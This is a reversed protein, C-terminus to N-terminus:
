PASFGGGSRPARQPSGVLLRNRLWNTRNPNGDGLFDFLADFAGDGDLDALFLEASYYELDLFVQQNTAPDVLDITLKYNGSRTIEGALPQGLTNTFDWGGVYGDLVDPTWPLDTPPGAGPQLVADAICYAAGSLSQFTNALVAVAFRHTDEWILFAGWGPINGGHQCIMLDGFPEVFIGYGYAMGPLIEQNAVPEQMEIASGPELVAGGGDILTLAWSALDGATSFAYGAASVIANDYADPPYITELIVGSPRYHGYSFNGDAMVEAPDFTTRNMGAPAFIRSVMYERYPVGSAREAVLGALNFNPNSYNWFVGPPTHLSQAGHNAAWDGLAEDDIRDDLDFPLDPIGSTHTLLHQVSLTDVSWRGPVDFEPIHRTVPDDLFVTGAEVQQMVAAATLQKTVSGIRFITDADVEGGNRRHKVGYGAEHLMAGGLIVAVSAGPTGQVLMDAEVCMDIAEHVSKATLHAKLRATDPLMASLEPWPLHSSTVQLPTVIDRPPTAGNPDDAGAAPSIMEITCLFAIWGVKKARRM